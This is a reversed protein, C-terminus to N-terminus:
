DNCFREFFCASANLNKAGTELGDVDTLTWKEVENVDTFSDMFAIIGEINKATVKKNTYTILDNDRSYGNVIITMAENTKM